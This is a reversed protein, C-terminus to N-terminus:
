TLSARGVDAAMEARYAELRARLEPRSNGLIAVALLAANAAGSPGIAVTAVPIGKPMQVISLLSDLGSLAASQVPVGIVPVVTHSAVMGPLHAAGGAGAIIVELGRGAAATAYDAMLSPTRHASVVKSEHPVGFQTLVEDAHRMTDWDSKSGMILGVLAAPTTM